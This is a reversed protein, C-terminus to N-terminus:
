ADLRFRFADGTEDMLYFVQCSQQMGADFVQAGAAPGGRLLDGTDIIKQAPSFAPGLGHGTDNQTDSGDQSGRQQDFPEKNKVRRSRSAM